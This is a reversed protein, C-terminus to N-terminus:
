LKLLRRLLDTYCATRSQSHVTYPDLDFAPLTHLPLKLELAATLVSLAAKGHVPDPAAAPYRHHEQRAAFEIESGYSETSRRSGAYITTKVTGHM